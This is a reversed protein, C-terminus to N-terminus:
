RDYENDLEKLIILEKSFSVAIIFSSSAEEMEATVPRSSAVTAFARDM